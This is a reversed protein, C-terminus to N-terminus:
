VAVCLVIALLAALASIVRGAIAEWPLEFVLRVDQEGPPADVLMFGAPDKRVTLRRDGTYAHWAPDYSEQVLLTEGAHMEAHLRIAEVGEWRMGVARDPGREVAAVYADLEARDDNSIPIARVADIKATEVIRAHAPFRRPVGYVVDGRGNDYLLPLRGRFKGPATFEQLLEPAEREHMVIADAGVAQLWALDRGPEVDRTVQWQALFVDLNLLGQESGGGVQQQDHWADFWLRLSGSAFTRADPLNRATWGSLQYEIRAEPNPDATFVSWPHALYRWSAALAILVLAAAVARRQTRLMEITLLILFLDFEPMLRHPEGTLRFNVYYVGLVQVGFCLAAAIAFLRWAQDKRGRAFKSSLYGFLILLALATWRSWANGPRAVLRLNETTVRLYSPTLWFATLAWALAAIAASRGLMRRDLHTIWLSWVLLPFLMALSVAGYFNHSVVAASFVAAGAIWRWGGSRIAIWACALALPLLALASMHPGEGWKVLVNLRQPMAMLSDERVARLFLFSPSVLATAAAGIWAWGRSGTAVRVLVYTAASGLAYFFATYLHYARATSINGILSLVATGYRLAPPYIYDWRTGCYWGPLWLPHPWHEKLFRADAIFTSDISGWNDLYEIRWLPLILVAAALFTAFIDWPEFRRWSNFGDRM